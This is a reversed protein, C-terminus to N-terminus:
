AREITFTYAKFANRWALDPAREVGEREQRRVLDEERGVKCRARVIRPRKVLTHTDSEVVRMPQRVPRVHEGATVDEQAYIRTFTMAMVGVNLCGSDSRLKADVEVVQGGHCRTGVLNAHPDSTEVGMDATADRFRRCPPRNRLAHTFDAWEEGIHFDQMLRPPIAGGCPKIRGERDLLAVKLGSRVLDEAATAGAPGGGVVVVDYM